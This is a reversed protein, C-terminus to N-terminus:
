LKRRITLEGGVNISLPFGVEEATGDQQIVYHLLGNEFGSFSFLNEMIEAYYLWKLKAHNSFCGQSVADLPACPSKKIFLL